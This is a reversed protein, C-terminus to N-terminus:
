IRRAVLVRNLLKAFIRAIARQVLGEAAAIAKKKLERQEPEDLWGIVRQMWAKLTNFCIRGFWKVRSWVQM